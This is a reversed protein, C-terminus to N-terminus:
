NLKVDGSSLSFSLSNFHFSSSILVSTVLVM